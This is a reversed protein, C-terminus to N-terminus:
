AFCARVILDSLMTVALHPVAVSFLTPSSGGHAGSLELEGGDEGEARRQLITHFSDDSQQVGRFINDLSLLPLAAQTPNPM